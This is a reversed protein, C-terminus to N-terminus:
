KMLILSSSLLVSKGSKKQTGMKFICIDKIILGTRSDSDESIGWETTAEM